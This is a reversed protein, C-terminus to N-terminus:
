AWPLTAYVPKFVEKRRGKSLERSDGLTPLLSTVLGTKADMAVHTKYGRYRIEKKVKQGDAEV